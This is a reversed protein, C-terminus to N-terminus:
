CWGATTSGPSAKARSRSALPTARWASRFCPTGGPLRSSFCPWIPGFPSGTAPPSLAADTVLNGLGGTEIPLEGLAEAVVTESEGWARQRSGPVGAGHRAPGQQDPLHDRRGGRVGGRCRASWRPLPARLAEAPPTAPPSRAPLRPSPCATSGSRAEARATTARTPSTSASAGRRVPGPRDGGLRRQGRGHGQVSGLDSGSPIPPSSGPRRERFRQPDLASGAPAPERRRRLERHAQPEPLRGHAAAAGPEADDLHIPCGVGACPERGGGPRRRPGRRGPVCVLIRTLRSGISLPRGARVRPCRPRRAICVQRGHFILLHSLLAWDERPFLPM